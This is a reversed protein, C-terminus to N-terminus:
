YPRYQPHQQQGFPQGFQQQQQQQAAVAAHQMNQPASQVAHQGSLPVSAGMMQLPPSPTHYEDMMRARKVVPVAAACAGMDASMNFNQISGQAFVQFTANAMGAALAKFPTCGSRIRGGPSLGFPASQSPQGPALTQQQGHVTTHQQGPVNQQPQAGVPQGNRIADLRATELIAKARESELKERLEKLQKTKAEAKEVEARMAVVDEDDGAEEEEEEEEEEDDNPDTIGLKDCLRQAMESKTGTVDRIKHWRMANELRSRPTMNWIKSWSLKGPDTPKPPKASNPAAPPPPDNTPKPKRASKKTRSGDDDNPHNGGDGGSASAKEGGGTEDVVAVAEVAVPKRARGKGLNAMWGDTADVAGTVAPHPVVASEPLGYDNDAVHMQSVLLGDDLRPKSREHFHVLANVVPRDSSRAVGCFIGHEKGVKVSCRFAVHVHLSIPAVYSAPKIAFATWLTWSTEPIQGADFLVFSGVVKDAKLVEM